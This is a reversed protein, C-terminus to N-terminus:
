NGETISMTRISDGAEIRDVTRMGSVVRGFLTYGGDLHPLSTHAIFFQSGGTDKGSHAMGVAGRTFSEMNYECRISYGPGGGGDGRPCGDQIVFGPIVRHWTKNDYFGSTALDVFNVVTKPAIDYLLEITIDGRNTRITATPNSDFREFIDGYNDLTIRTDFGGLKDQKDIGIKDFAAIASERVHYDSDGVAKELTKMMAPDPSVSDIWSVFGRVIALRINPENDPAHDRYLDALREILSSDKAACIMEIATVQVTFDDDDLADEVLMRVDGFGSNALASLAQRRLRGDPDDFLDVLVNHASDSKIESLGDIVRSKVYFDSEWLLRDLRGMFYKPDMRAAAVIAAARLTMNEHDLYPKLKVLSKSLKLMGLAGIAEAKVHISHKGSLINLLTKLARRDGVQSISRILSIKVLSNSERSLRDTLHSLGTSDGLVGLARAAYHRVLSASDKMCWRLRGFASPDGTRMLAYVAMARVDAISDRSMEVLDVTRGHGPLRAFARAVAGRVAPDPDDMYRTLAAVIVLDGMRGLAEIMAIKVASSQGDNLDATIALLADPGGILGLAFAAEQRIVEVSDTLAEAVHVSAERAGIRGLAKVARLRVLPDPDTVFEFLEGGGLDRTDEQIAIKVFKDRQTLERDGDGCSFFTM